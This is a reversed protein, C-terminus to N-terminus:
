NPLIETLGWEILSPIGIILICMLGTCTISKDEPFKFFKVGRCIVYVTWLPLFILIAWLMPLFEMATFFLCLSSLNLIVFVKGFETDMCKGAGRPMLAKLLIVILFYGAFYGVFSTVAQMLVETVTVRSNYFLSAFHSVALLALLPYFCNTQASEVTVKDRRVKKWGETPNSLVSLLLKLVADHPRQKEQSEDEVADESDEPMQSYNYSSSDLSDDTEEFEEEDETEDEVYVYINDDDDNLVDHSEDIEANDDDRM